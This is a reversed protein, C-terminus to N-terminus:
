LISKPADKKVQARREVIEPSIVEKLTQLKIPTDPATHLPGENWSCSPASRFCGSPRRRPRRQSGPDCREGGDFGVGSLRARAATQLGEKEEPAGLPSRGGHRGGM